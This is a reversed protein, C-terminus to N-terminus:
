NRGTSEDAEETWEVGYKETCIEKLKDICMLWGQAQNYGVIDNPFIEKIEEILSCIEKATSKRANFLGFLFLNKPVYDAGNVFGVVEGNKIVPECVKRYGNNIAKDAYEYMGCYQDCIRGCPYGECMVHMLDYKKTEDM